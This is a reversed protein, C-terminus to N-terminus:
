SMNELEFFLQATRLVRRTHRDGDLDVEVIYIDYSADQQSGDVITFLEDEQTVTRTAATPWRREIYERAFAIAEDKDSKAALVYHNDDREVRGMVIYITQAM